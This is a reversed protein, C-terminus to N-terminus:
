AATCTIKPAAAPGSAVFGWAERSQGAAIAGNWGMDTATVATGSATVRANWHSTLSQGSPWTWQVTWGNVAGSGATIRVSGQWGSGWEGVVDVEAACGEGVPPDGPGGSGGPTPRPNITQAFVRQIQARDRDVSADDILNSAYLPASLEDLATQAFGSGYLQAKIQTFTQEYLARFAPVALAREVCPCGWTTRQAAEIGDQVPTPLAEAATDFGAVTPRPPAPFIGYSLNHDWAVITMRGTGPTYRFYGNQGPGDIDDWNLILDQVALYRAFAATDIRDDLQAAFEADTANNMWDLFEFLPQWNDEDGGAPEFAGDYADPDDGRYSFDEDWQKKYLTGGDKSGDAAPFNERDFTKDPEQVVLRLVPPEGNVSFGAPASKSAVLGAAELLRLSLAENLSSATMNSRIAFRKYGDFDQEVYKDLRILWPLSSPSSDVGIGWLSSKGKLKIGSDPFTRGDITVDASIWQKEGSDLFERVMAVFEGRDLSVEIDHVAGSDWVPSTQAPQAAAPNGALGIALTLTAAIVALTRTIPRM